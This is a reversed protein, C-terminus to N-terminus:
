ILKLVFFLVKQINTPVSGWGGNRPISIAADCNLVLPVGVPNQLEVGKHSAVPINGSQMCQMCIYIYIYIYPQRSVM